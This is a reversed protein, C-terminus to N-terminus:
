NNNKDHPELTNCDASVKLILYLVIYQEYYKLNELGFFALLRTQIIYDSDTTNKDNKCPVQFYCIRLTFFTISKSSSDSM